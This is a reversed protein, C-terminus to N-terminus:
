MWEATNTTCKLPYHDYMENIEPQYLNKRTPIM